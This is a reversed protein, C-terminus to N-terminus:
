GCCVAHWQQLCGVAEWAGGMHAPRLWAFCQSTSTVGSRGCWVVEGDAGAVKRVAWWRAHHYFNLSTDYSARSDQQRKTMGRGTWMSICASSPLPRLVSSHHRKQPHAKNAM